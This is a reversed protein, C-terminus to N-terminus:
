MTARHLLNERLRGAAEGTVIIGAHVRFNQSRQCPCILAMYHSVPGIGIGTRGDLFKFFM